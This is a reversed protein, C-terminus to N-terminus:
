RTQLQDDPPLRYPHEWLLSIHHGIHLTDETNSPVQSRQYKVKEILEDIRCNRLEKFQNCIPHLNSRVWLAVPIAKQLVITFFEEECNQSLPKLLEVGIVDEKQLTHELETLNDSCSMLVESVPNSQKNKFVEWKEQWFGIKRQYSRSLRETSRLVIKYERSLYESNLKSGSDRLYESKLEWKDVKEKQFNIPLFIEITLKSSSFERIENLFDTIRKPIEECKLTINETNDPPLDIKQCSSINNKYHYNDGDTILWANVFYSKEKPNTVASQHSESIEIILYHNLKKVQNKQENKTYIIKLLELYGTIKKEFSKNLESKFLQPMNSDKVLFGIFREISTYKSEGSPMKKLEVLIDTLNNPVPNPWDDPSCAKYAQKACLLIKEKEEKDSSILINLLEQSTDVDDPQVPSDRFLQGEKNDQCRLYLVPRYWQNGEINMANQGQQLAIPLPRKQQLSKYFDVAFAKAAGVSVSYTMAVVAPIGQGILKQAVGNFVNESLLSLGSRCASLVVLAVRQELNGLLNGLQKASVYDGSGNSKEFLLYGQPDELQKGCECDIINQKYAKGCGLENCRKGFFGHGDFHIAHIVAQNQPKELRTKLADWTPPTLIELKILGQDANQSQQLKQAIADQELSPLSELDNSKDSAGSSILLVNLRDALPLNPPPSPYAIYRSFVVRQRAVFDYSNHLLEWPYDTLRAFEPTDAVFTLRIHLWTNNKKTEAVATEIIQQIKNGLVQYLERGITALHGTKFYNGKLPLIGVDRMWAQENKKKFSRKDFQTLELVRVITSRRDVVNPIEGDLFPLKAEDHDEGPFGKVTVKFNHPKDTTPYFSLELTYM